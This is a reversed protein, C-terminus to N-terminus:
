RRPAIRDQLRRAATEALRRLDAAYPHIALTLALLAAAAALAALAGARPTVAKFSAEYPPSVLRYLVIAAAVSALSAIGLAALGRRGLLGAVALLVTAGGAVALYVDFSAFVIWGKTNFEHGADSVYHFWPLWPSGALAAGCLAAALCALRSRHISRRESPAPM